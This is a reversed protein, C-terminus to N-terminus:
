EKKLWKFWYVGFLDQIEKLYGEYREIENVYNIFDNVKDDLLADSLLNFYEYPMVMRSFFYCYEYYSYKFNDLYELLMERDHNTRIYAAIDRFYLDVTINLPSYFELSNLNFIRHSLYLNGSFSYKKLNYIIIECIGYFYDFTNNIIRKDSLQQLQYEIYDIKEEWFKEMPIYYKNMFDSAPLCFLKIDDLDIKYKIVNTKFLVYEESKLEGNINYVFEHLRINYRKLEVIMEELMHLYEEDYETKVFYYLLGDVCFLGEELFNEIKIKYYKELLDKM